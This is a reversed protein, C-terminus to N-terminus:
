LPNGVNKCGFPEKEVDRRGRLLFETTPDNTHLRTGEKRVKWGIMQRSGLFNYHCVEFIDLICTFWICLWPRPMRPCKSKSINCLIDKISCYFLVLM